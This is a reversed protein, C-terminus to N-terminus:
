RWGAERLQAAIEEAIRAYGQANAHIRDSRLAADSLVGAYVGALLQVQAERALEAYFPADALVGVAARMADPAPTAILAVHPTHAKAQRLLEAIATRTSQAPVGRLMDNGGIGVLVADFRQAALLPELRALAGEATDGNVGENHLEWGTLRALQAPWDAGAPAGYGATLSDGLALVSASAPLIAAQGRRRGCGALWALAAIAPFIHRRRMVPRVPTGEGAAGTRAGKPVAPRPSM